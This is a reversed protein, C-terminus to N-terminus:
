TKKVKGAELSKIIKKKARKPFPIQLSPSSKEGLLLRGWVDAAKNIFGGISTEEIVNHKNKM